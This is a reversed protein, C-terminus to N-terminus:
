NIQYYEDIQVNTTYNSTIGFKSILNIDKFYINEILSEPLGSLVISHQADGRINTVEVNRIVPTKDTFPELKLTHNYLDKDESSPNYKLSLLIAEKKIDIVVGEENLSSSYAEKLEM